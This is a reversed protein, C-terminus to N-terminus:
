MFRTSSMVALMVCHKEKSLVVPSSLVAIVIVGNESPWKVSTTDAIFLGFLVNAVTLTLQKLETIKSM